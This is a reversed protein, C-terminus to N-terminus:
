THIYLTYMCYLVKVAATYAYINVALCIHESGLMYNHESGFMYTGQWAYINVALCIHESGLM